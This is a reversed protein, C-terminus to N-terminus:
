QKVFTQKGSMSQGSVSAENAITLTKKDESLSYRETGVFSGGGFDATTKIVLVDDSWAATSNFEINTGNANVTNKSPSGDLAYTATGSRTMGMATTAREITLSKDTQTVKLTASTPLMTGESKSVDLTWTGTFDPHALRNPRGRVAALTTLMLM